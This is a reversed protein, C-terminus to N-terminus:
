AIQAEEKEGLKIEGRSAMDQLILRFVFDVCSHYMVGDFFMGGSGCNGELQHSLAKQINERPINSQLLVSILLSITRFLLNQCTGCKGLTIQVERLKNECPNMNVYLSGCHSNFKPTYGELVEPRQFDTM